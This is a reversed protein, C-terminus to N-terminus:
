SIDYCYLFIHSVLSVALYFCAVHMKGHPYLLDDCLMFRIHQEPVNVEDWWVPSFTTGNFIDHARRLINRLLKNNFLCFKLSLKESSYLLGDM